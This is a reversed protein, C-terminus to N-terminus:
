SSESEAVVFSIPVDAENKYSVIEWADQDELLRRLLLNNLAHGSKEGHFAGVLSHGLLYLDGIADLMKHKVFEDDYRLGGENVIQSDDLVVANDLSGGKALNRSRLADIEQAFGFTRARSIERLFSTTSFEVVANQNDKNFAPHDFDINFTVKFGDFPEVRALKDGSRVEVAKKIRLFQKYRDQSVTGASQFLFIFPAASGDMIPIEDADVDVYLNDIGMGAAASLLHEVTSVRQDECILCTSLATDGVNEVTAPFEIVPDLDVRRFVIGTGSPAPHLCLNVQRGSHVGVGRAKIKTAITREYM